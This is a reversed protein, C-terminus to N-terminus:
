TSEDESNSYLSFTRLKKLGTQHEELKGVQNKRIFKHTNTELLKKRDKGKSFKAMSRNQQGIDRDTITAMM